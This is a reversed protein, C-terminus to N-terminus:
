NDQAIDINAIDQAPVETEQPPIPLLDISQVVKEDKLTSFQVNELRLITETIMDSSLKSVQTEAINYDANAALNTFLSELVKMPCIFRGVCEGTAKTIIVTTNIHTTMTQKLMSIKCAPCKVVVQASNEEDARFKCSVCALTRTVEAAIVKGVFCENESTKPELADIALKTDDSFNIVEEIKHVATKTTTALFNRQYFSVRVNEFLYSAGNQVQDINEEWLTLPIASTTDAVIASSKDFSKRTTQAYVTQRTSKSVVKAKVAVLDGTSQAGNVIQCIPIVESGTSRTEFPKWPFSLNKKNVVRSFKNMTYETAEPNYKRKQPSINALTVPSRAQQKEKLTPRKEPSFCVIRTQQENEQINFDFYRVGSRAVRIDSVNHIYGDVDSNKFSKSPSATNSSM